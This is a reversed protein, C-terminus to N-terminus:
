GLSDVLVANSYVLSGDSARKGVLHFQGRDDDPSLYVRFRCDALRGCDASTALELSDSDADVFAEAERTEKLREETQELQLRSQEDVHFHIKDVPTSKSAGEPKFWGEITLTDM